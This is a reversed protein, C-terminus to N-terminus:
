FAIVQGDGILAEPPVPAFSKKVWKLSKNVWAPEKKSGRLGTISGAAARQASNHLMAHLINCRVVVKEIDILDGTV